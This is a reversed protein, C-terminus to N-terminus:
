KLKMYIDEYLNIYRSYCIENSFFNIARDRCSSTYHDKGHDIIMEIAREAGLIDGKDIVYGTTEDLAEPSGGTNYTVVPLGCALAEINTSPFNDAYTANVFVDAASYLAALDQKIETRVIGKIGDPLGSIQQNNLGVLIITIGAPLVQRLKIFDALGKRKDWISAVGIVLKDTKLGFKLRIYQYDVPKFLETDTGNHIVLIESNKLFSKKLHDSLWYSPTVIKLGKVETFLKRKALFNSKSNDRCWSEPYGILNPCNNCETQWKYCNVRDFYSCHGTFPWCDHLTWVVPKGSEKIYNFLIKANLYYGHINHLHIIDPDTERLEEIFRHTANVSGFGHLDFLRSSLVHFYLDKRSSIRITKSSSPQNGRGFAILSQHGRDILEKGIGEAIRGTSGSNVTTNVQLVKM